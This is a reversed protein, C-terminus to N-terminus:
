SLTGGLLHGIMHAAAAVYYDNSSAQGTVPIKLYAYPGDAFGIQEMFDRDNPSGDVLDVMLFVDQKKVRELANDSFFKRFYARFEASQKFAQYSMAGRDLPMPPEITIPYLGFPSIHVVRQPQGTNREYERAFWHGLDMITHQDGTEYGDGPTDGFAKLFYESKEQGPHGTVFIVAVNVENVPTIHRWALGLEERFWLLMFVVLLAIFAGGVVRLVRKQKYIEFHEPCYPKGRTSILCTVCLYKDCTRCRTRANMHPHFACYRQKKDVPLVELIGGVEALKEAFAEAAETPASPMLEVPVGEVLDVAEDFSMGLIEAIKKVTEYKDQAKELGVLVVKSRGVGAEPEKGAM